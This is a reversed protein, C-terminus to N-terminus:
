RVGREFMRKSAEQTRYVEIKAMHTDRQLKLDEYEQISKATKKLHSEFDPHALACMEKAASSSETSKIMLASKVAKVQQDLLWSRAKAMAIDPTNDNLWELSKEIESDKIM